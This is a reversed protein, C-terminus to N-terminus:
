YRIMDMDSQYRASVDDYAKRFVEGCIHAPLEIHGVNEDETRVHITVIGNKVFVTKGIWNTNNICANSAHLFEKYDLRNLKLCFINTTITANEDIWDGFEFEVSTVAAM